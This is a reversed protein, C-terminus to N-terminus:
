GCRVMNSAKCGFSKIAATMGRRRLRLPIEMLITIQGYIFVKQKKEKSKGQHFLLLLDLSCLIKNNGVIEKALDGLSM